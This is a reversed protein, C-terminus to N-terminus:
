VGGFVAGGGAEIFDSVGWFLVGGEIFDSFTNDLSFRPGICFCVFVYLFWTFFMNFVIGKFQDVSHKLVSQPYLKNSPIM